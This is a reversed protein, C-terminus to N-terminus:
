ELLGPSRESPVHGFKERFLRSFQAPDDFGLRAAAERVSVRGRSGRLMTRARKLREELIADQPFSGTEERYKRNFEARPLGFRDALRDVGLLPLDESPVCRLFFRVKEGLSVASQELQRVFGVVQSLFAAAKAAPDPERLFPESLRIQRRVLAEPQDGYFLLLIGSVVTMLRTDMLKLNPGCAAELGRAYSELASALGELGRAHYVKLIAGATDLTKTVDSM